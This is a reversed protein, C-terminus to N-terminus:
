APQEDPDAGIVENNKVAYDYRKGLLWAAGLWSFIIAGFFGWYASQRVAESLHVVATNFGSGFVKAIKTGFTDIWSKSKFKMEKVAPIYLSERVPYGLAYNITRILMFVWIIATKNYGLMFFVLGMGTLIPILMLCLREGFKRLLWRTGFFSLIFGACHVMFSIKLLNCTGETLTQADGMAIDIRLYSLITNIVEYFFIMSFIGLVYPYEVFMKLGSMIGTSDKGERMRQKELQYVSEQGHLYQGPVVRMMYLISIPVMLLFISAFILLVQHNVADSYNLFSGFFTHWSLFLIAVGSSMMGGIKSGAVMVAYNKKAGDASTISNVFAWFVSVVFPSYGEVFFYFFWGFWRDWHTNTNPLGIVPDGLLYAFVVGLTGFAISYICLLQYRRVKDVIISYLMTMPILVFFAMLKATPIYEKGVIAVFISDKLEKAITYGAIVCFFGLTLLLFKRREYKDGGGFLGALASVIASGM